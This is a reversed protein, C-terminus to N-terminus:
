VHFLNYVEEFLEALTGGSAGFTVALIGVFVGAAGTTAEATEVEAGFGVGAM